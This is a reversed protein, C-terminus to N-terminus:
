VDEKPQSAARFAAYADADRRSTTLWLTDGSFGCDCGTRKDSERVAEVGAAIRADRSCDCPGRECDCPSGHFDHSLLSACEADHAVAQLETLWPNM